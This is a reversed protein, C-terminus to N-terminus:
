PSPTAMACATTPTCPPVMHTSSVAPPPVVMPNRNGSRAPWPGPPRTASATGGHLNERHVVLGLDEPGEPRAQGSAAVVHQRSGVPLGRELRHGRVLDLQHHEVQPEGP